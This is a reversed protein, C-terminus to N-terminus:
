WECITRALTENFMDRTDIWNPHPQRVFHVPEAPQADRWQQVFDAWVQLDRFERGKDDHIFIRAGRGESEEVAYTLAARLTEASAHTVGDAARATIVYNGPADLTPM